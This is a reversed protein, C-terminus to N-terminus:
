AGTDPSHLISFDLMYMWCDKGGPAKGEAKSVIENELLCHGTAEGDIALAVRDLTDLVLTRIPKCLSPLRHHISVQVVSEVARVLGTTQAHSRSVLTMTVYPLIAGEPAEDLYWRSSVAAVLDANALYAAQIAELESDYTTVVGSTLAVVAAATFGLTTSASVTTATTLTVAASATFGLTTAAAITINASGLTVEAAATFGLTTSVSVTTATTLTVEAAATFGLTTSVDITTAGSAGIGYGQTPILNVGGWSGYGRQIISSVGM